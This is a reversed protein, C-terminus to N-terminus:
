NIWSQEPSHGSKQFQLITKKLGQRLSTPTFGLELKTRSNDITVDTALTRLADRSLLPSKKTVKAVMEGANSFALVLWM